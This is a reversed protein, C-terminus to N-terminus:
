AFRNPDKGLIESTMAMEPLLRTPHTDLSHIYVGSLPEQIALQHQPNEDLRHPNDFFPNKSYRLGAQWIAYHQSAAADRRQVALLLEYSAIGGGGELSRVDQQWQRDTSDALQRGTQAFGLTNDVVVPWTVQRWSLPCDCLRHLARRGLRRAITLPQQEGQEDLPPPLEVTDFLTAQGTGEPDSRLRRLVLPSKESSTM